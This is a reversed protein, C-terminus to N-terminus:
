GTHPLRQLVKSFAQAISIPWNGEIKELVGDNSSGGSRNSCGFINFVIGIMKLLQFCSIKLAACCSAQFWSAWLRWPSVALSWSRCQLLLNRNPSTPKQYAHWSGCEESIWVKWLWHGGLFGQASDDYVTADNDLEYEEQCPPSITINAPTWESKSRKKLYARQLYLM